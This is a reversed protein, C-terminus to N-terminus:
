PHVFSLIRQTEGMTGIEFILQPQVLTSVRPNARSQSEERETKLICSQLSIAESHDM